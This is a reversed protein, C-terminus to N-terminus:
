HESLQLSKLLELGARIDLLRQAENQGEREVALPGGYGGLELQSLFEKWEVAGQGLPTETGLQGPAVPWTGDKCHVSLLAPQLLRLAAVPEGTGYLIMNAPDFNIGLNRRNVESIFTLLEQATEQGTELAFTQGRAAAHDCVRRVVGIVARYHEDTSDSPVCGVHTAISLAGIEQAFNSVELTREERATRTASPVFGVTHRVSAVDAYSEGDYAAFVTYIEFHQAEAAAKWTRGADKLDFDGPVGLQGCNVGMEVLTRLTDAPDKGAWFMVARRSNTLLGM